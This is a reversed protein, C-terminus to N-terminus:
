GKWSISPDAQTGYIVARLYAVFAIFRGTSPTRGLVELTREVETLSISYKMQSKVVRIQLSSM